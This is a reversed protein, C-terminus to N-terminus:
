TPTALALRRSSIGISVRRGWGFLLHDTEIGDAFITGGDDMESTVVVPDSEILGSVIETGTAPSPWAERVLLGLRPATPALDLAIHSAQMISRAWGTAGTGTAVILGSSSQHEGRGGLSIMYRASQHSRHGVFIENLATLTVGDDLRAEAMTRHEVHLERAAAMRLLQPVDGARFRVLAGSNVGPAPDVGIVPQGDLYKAVNAVLGDQGVAVIIDEPGFLFREVDARFITAQRWDAPIAAHVARLVELLEAHATEVTDISIRKRKLVFRASATSAHVARIRDLETERRVVIVRPALM